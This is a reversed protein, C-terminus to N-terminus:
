KFQIYYFWNGRKPGTVGLLIFSRRIMLVGVPIYWWAVILVEVQSDGFFRKMAVAIARM